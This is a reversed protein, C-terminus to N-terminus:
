EEMINQVTQEGPQEVKQLRHIISYVFKGDTRVAATEKELSSQVEKYKNLFGESQKSKM